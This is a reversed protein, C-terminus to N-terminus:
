VERNTPLKLHTYSVTEEGMMESYTVGAGLHLWDGERSWGQLEPIRGIAVVQDVPMSGKNVQVMVDTGGALIIAEPCEELAALAHDLSRAVTVPM